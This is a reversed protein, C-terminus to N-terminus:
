GVTKHGLVRSIQNYNAVEKIKILLEWKISRTNLLAKYDSYNVDLIVGMNGM